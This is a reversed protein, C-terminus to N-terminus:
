FNSIVAGFIILVAALYIGNVAALYPLSITGSGLTATILSFISGNMGGAKFKKKYFSIPYGLVRAVRTFSSARMQPPSVPPLLHPLDSAKPTMPREMQNQLPEEILINQQILSYNKSNISSNYNVTLNIAKSETDFDDM